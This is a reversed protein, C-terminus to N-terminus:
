RQVTGAIAIAVLPCSCFPITEAQTDFSTNLHKPYPGDAVCGRLRTDRAVPQMSGDLRTDHLGLLPGMFRARM